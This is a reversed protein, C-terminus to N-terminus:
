RRAIVAAFFGDTHAEPPFTRFFGDHKNGEFFSAASIGPQLHPELAARGTVTHFNILAGGSTSLVENVVQENEEPELSCTSYVLRGDPALVALAQRLMQAQQLHLDKLNRPDLRWRIEPNRALTGTGSCPADVLVREFFGAFARQAFSNETSSGNAFPLPQTADLAVMKWTKGWLNDPAIETQPKRKATTLRAPRARLVM